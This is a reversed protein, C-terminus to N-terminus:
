HGRGNDMAHSSANDMIILVKRKRRAFFSNAKKTWQTFVQVLCMCMHIDPGVCVGCVHETDHICTFV